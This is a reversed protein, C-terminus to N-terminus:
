EVFSNKAIELPERRLGASGQFSVRERVFLHTRQGHLLLHLADIVDCLHTGGRAAADAMGLRANEEWSEV